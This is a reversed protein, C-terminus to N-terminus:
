QPKCYVEHQSDVRGFDLVQLYIQSYFCYYQKSESHLKLLLRLPNLSLLLAVHRPSNSPYRVIKSKEPIKM